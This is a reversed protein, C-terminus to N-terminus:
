LWEELARAARAAAGHRHTYALRLAAQRLARQEPPDTLALRVAPELQAPHSVQVGVDAAQWFRLGHEVKRRYWPANLVVVPRGTSAFEYLTSSNDCVYLDARRCVEAWSAVYEIGLRAWLPQLVRAAKPHAHGILPLERALGALAARYYPMASRTEPLLQCDWHFSVAVALPGPQRAPLLDLAPDGVVVVKAQPYAAQDAAAAHDNPSLFLTVTGRGRGGPYGPVGPGYTQGAGHELYAVRRYGHRHALALDSASSVLAAPARGVGVAGRLAPSLAAWVPELHALYQPHSALLDLM